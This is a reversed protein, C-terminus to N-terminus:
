TVNYCKNDREKGIPLVEPLLKCANVARPKWEKKRCSQDSLCLYIGVFTQNKM